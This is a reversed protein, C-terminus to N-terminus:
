HLNHIFVISPFRTFNPASDLQSCSYLSPPLSVWCRTRRIIAATGVIASSFHTEEVLLSQGIMEDPQTYFPTCHTHFDHLIPFCTTNFDSFFLSDEYMCSSWCPVICRPMHLIFDWSFGDFPISVQVLFHAVFLFIPHLLPLPTHLVHKAAMSSEFRNTVTHTDKWM